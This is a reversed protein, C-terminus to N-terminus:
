VNYLRLGTADEPKLEYVTKRIREISGDEKVKIRKGERNIAYGTLKKEAPANPDIEIAFEVDM